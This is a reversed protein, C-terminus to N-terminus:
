FTISKIKIGVTFHIPEGGNDGLRVQIVARLDQMTEITVDGKDDVLSYLKTWDQYKLEDGIILLVDEYNEEWEEEARDSDTTVKLLEIEINEKRDAENGNVVIKIIDEDDGTTSGQKCCCVCCQNDQFHM